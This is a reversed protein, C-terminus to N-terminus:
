KVDRGDELKLEVNKHLCSAKMQTRKVVKTQFKKMVFLGYRIISDLSKVSVTYTRQLKKQISINMYVHEFFEFVRGRTLVVNARANVLINRILKRTTYITAKVNISKRITVKKSLAITLKATEYYIYRFVRNFRDQMHVPVIYSRKSKTTRNITLLVTQSIHKVLKSSKSMTAHVSITFPRILKNRLTSNAKAAVTFYRKLKSSQHQAMHIAETLVITFKGITKGFFGIESFNGTFTRKGFENFNTFILNGREDVAM